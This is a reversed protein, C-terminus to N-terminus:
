LRQAFFQHEASHRRRDDQPGRDQEAGFVVEEVPKCCNRTDGRSKGEDAAALGPELGHKGAIDGARNDSGDFPAGFIAFNVLDASRM